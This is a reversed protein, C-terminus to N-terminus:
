LNSAHERVTHPELDAKPLPRSRPTLRRGSSRAKWRTFLGRTLTLVMSHFLGSVGPMCQDHGLEYNIIASLFMVVINYYISFLSIELLLRVKSLISYM